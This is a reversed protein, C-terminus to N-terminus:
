RRSAPPSSAPPTGGRGQLAQLLRLAVDATGPAGEQVIHQAEEVLPANPRYSTIRPGDGTLIWRMSVGTYDCFRLLLGAKINEIATGGTQWLSLASHTCGITDAIEELRRGSQAVAWRVRDAPSSLDRASSM